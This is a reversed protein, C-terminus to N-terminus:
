DDERDKSTEKNIFSLSINKDLVKEIFLKRDLCVSVLRGDIPKQNNIKEMVNNLRKFIINNAVKDYFNLNPELTRIREEINRENISFDDQFLSFIVELKEDIRSLVKEIEDDHIVGVKDKKIKMNEKLMNLILKDIRNIIGRESELM